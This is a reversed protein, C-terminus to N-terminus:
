CQQCDEQTIRHYGSLGALVGRVSVSGCQISGGRAVILNRTEILAICHWVEARLSLSLNVSCPSVSETGRFPKRWEFLSNDCIDSM